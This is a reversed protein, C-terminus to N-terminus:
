DAWSWAAYVVIAAFATWCVWYLLTSWWVRPVGQQSEIRHKDAMGWAHLVLGVVLIPWGLGTIYSAVLVGIGLGLVGAGFSSSLEAVRLRHDVVDRSVVERNVSM